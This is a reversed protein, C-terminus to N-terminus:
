LNHRYCFGSSVNVAMGYVPKTYGRAILYIYICRYRKVFIDRVSFLSPVEVINEFFFNSSDELICRQEGLIVIEIGTKTKGFRLRLLLNISWLNQFFFFLFIVIGGDFDLMSNRTIKFNLCNERFSPRPTYWFRSRERTLPGTSFTPPRPYDSKSLRESELVIAIALCVDGGSGVSVPIFNVLAHM